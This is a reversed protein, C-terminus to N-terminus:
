KMADMDNCYIASLEDLFEKSTRSIDYKEEWLCLSRNRMASISVPPLNHVRLIADAVEGCAPNSALLIGNGDIQDAVAGVDTGIIPIGFSLAEQISVPSGESSSVNIFVDVYNNKYYDIIDENSVHGVAKLAIGNVECYDRIHSLNPGDGFHIWEIDKAQLVTLAKAILDVRKVPIVNSCSVIRFPKRMDKSPQSGRFPVGLANVIYQRPKSENGNRRRFYDAASDSLFFIRDLKEKMVRQYPQRGFPNAEDYLDYRHTRSAVAFSSQRPLAERGMLLALTEENLWFTLCISGIMGEELGTRRYFARMDCASTYFRLSDKLRGWTFGDEFLNKVEQRAMKSFLLSFLYSIRKWKGSRKYRVVAVDSPLETENAVDACDEKSAHSVIVVDYESCLSELGPGIFTKEGRGYPFADTFLFIKRKATEEKLADM